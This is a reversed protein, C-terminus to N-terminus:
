TEFCTNLSSMSELIFPAQTDFTDVVKYDTASDGERNKSLNGLVRETTDQVYCLIVKKPNEVYRKNKVNM